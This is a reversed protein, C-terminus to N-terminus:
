SEPTPPAKAEDEHLKRHMAAIHPPVGGEWPGHGGWHSPGGWHATRMGRHFFLRGLFGFFLFALILPIILGIFGFGFHGGGFAHMPFGFRAVGDAAPGAAAMMSGRALGMSYTLGGLGLVVAILVLIATVRFWVKAFM